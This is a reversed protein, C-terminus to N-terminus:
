GEELEQQEVPYVLNNKSHIYYIEICIRQSIASATSNNTSLLVTISFIYQIYLSSSHMLFKKSYLPNRSKLDLLATIALEITCVSSVTM